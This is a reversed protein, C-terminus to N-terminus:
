NLRENGAADELQKLFGEVLAAQTQDDLSDRLIRASVELALDSVNKKLEGMASEQARELEARGLEIMEQRQRRGERQLEEVAAKAEQTMRAIEDRAALRDAALEERLQAREVEAEAHLRGAEAISAAIEDSRQRMFEAIPRYLFRKFAALLLLFGIINILLAYPDFGLAHLSEM